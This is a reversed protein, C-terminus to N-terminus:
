KLTKYREPEDTTPFVNVEGALGHTSAIVGVQFRDTM